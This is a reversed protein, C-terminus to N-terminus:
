ENAKISVEMVKLADSVVDEVKQSADVLYTNEEKDTGKVCPVETRSFLWETMVPNYHHGKRKETRKISGEKNIDCWIIVLKLKSGRENLGHVGNRLRERVQKTLSTCTAVIGNPSSELELRHAHDVVDDMWQIHTEHSFPTGTSMTAKAEDSVLSDGEFFSFDLKKALIPGITSKGAGPPGGLIFFPVVM